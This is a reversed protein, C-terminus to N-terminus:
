EYLGGYCFYEEFKKRSICYTYKTSNKLAFGFPFIGKQLGVRVFQQSKNLKEAVEKVSMTLLM